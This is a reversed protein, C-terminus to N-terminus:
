QLLSLLASFDSDYLALHYPDGSDIDTGFYGNRHFSDSQLDTRTWLKSIVKGAGAYLVDFIFSGYLIFSCLRTIM